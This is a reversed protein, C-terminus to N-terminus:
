SRRLVVTVVLADWLELPSLKALRLGRAAGDGFPSAQTINSYDVYKSSLFIKLFGVEVNGESNIYYELPTTGSSGYGITLVGGPLLCPPTEGDKADPPQYYSTVSLDSNDFYFFSAYLSIPSNNTMKFGYEVGDEILVDILGDKKLNGGAPVRIQNPFRNFRSEKAIIRTCQFDVRSALQGTKNSRTLHFYFHAASQLILYLTDLANDKEWQRYLTHKMGHDICPKDLIEFGVTDEEVALALDAGDRDEVLMVGTDRLNERMSSLQEDSLGMSSIAPKGIAVRVAEQKGKRTELAFAIDPLGTADTNPMPRLVSTFATISSAVFTKSPSCRVNDDPYLAFEAGITIGNAEGSRILYSVPVGSQVEARHLIQSKKVKSNFLFRSSHVGECQPNQERGIDPLLRILDKYSIKDYGVKQLTKLLACTFLGHGYSEKATQDQRCAALLVHSTLGTGLSKESIKAGRQDGKDAPLLGEDRRLIDEDIRSYIRYSKPLELGRTLSFPHPNDKRTGSGSYCSDLIVTINNEKIKAVKALLYSLTKDLIGQGVESDVTEAIFDSPLIMQVNGPQSWAEPAPAESGHGAFFVLIPDGKEIREDEAFALIADKIAKGTAEANYLCQIHDSRVGIVDMLYATMAKADAVAGRLSLIRESDQYEDIGVVLAFFRKSTTLNVLPEPVNMGQFNQSPTVEETGGELGCSDQGDSTINMSSRPSPKSQPIKLLQSFKM